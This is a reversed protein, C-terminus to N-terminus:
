YNFLLSPQPIPFSPDLIKDKGIGWSERNIGESENAFPRKQALLPPMILWSYM